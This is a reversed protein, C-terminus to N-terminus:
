FRRQVPALAPILNREIISSLSLQLRRSLINKAIKVGSEKLKSAQPFASCSAQHQFDFKHAFYRFEKSQFMFLRILFETYLLSTSFSASRQQQLRPTFDCLKWGGPVTTLLWWTTRARSHFSIREWSRGHDILYFLPTSRSVGSRQVMNDANEVGM